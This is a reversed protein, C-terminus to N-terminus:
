AAASVVQQQIKLYRRLDIVNDKGSKARKERVGDVEISYATALKQTHDTVLNALSEWLETSFDVIIDGKDAYATVADLDSILRGIVSADLNGARGAELYECLSANLNAVCQPLERKAANRRKKVVFAVAGAAAVTTLVAAVVGPSRLRAAARRFAGHNNSASGADKLLKVIRGTVADRVVGGDLFFKGATIGAAIAGPLELQPQIVISVM